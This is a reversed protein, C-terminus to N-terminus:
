ARSHKYYAKGRQFTRTVLGWNVLNPLTDIISRTDLIEHLSVAEEVIEAVTYGVGDAEQTELIQLTVAGVWDVPSQYKRQM